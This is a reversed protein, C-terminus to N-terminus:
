DILMEEKIRFRSILAVFLILIGLIILTYKMSWDVMMGVLPTIIILVFTHMMSVSSLVTARKDSSIYKHMYNIYLTERGMGFGAILAIAFIVIPIFSVFGLLLYMAGAILASFFILNQKAKLAIEMKKFQSIVIIQSLVMLAHLWGFYKIDIGFNMFIGQELWIIFWALSGVLVLDFAFIKLIKHTAFYKTGERLADIYRKSESIKEFRKPEVLMLTIIAAFIFPF